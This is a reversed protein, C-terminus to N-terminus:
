LLRYCVWERFCAVEDDKVYFILDDADRVAKHAKVVIFHEKGDHSNIFVEWEKLELPKNRELMRELERQAKKSRPM